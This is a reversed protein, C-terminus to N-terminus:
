DSAPMTREAVGEEPLEGWGPAQNSRGKQARRYVQGEERAGEQERKRMGPEREVSQGVQETGQNTNVNGMM